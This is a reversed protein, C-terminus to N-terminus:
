CVIEGRHSSAELALVDLELLRFGLAHLRMAGLQRGFLPLGACVAAREFQRERTCAGIKRARPRGRMALHELLRDGDQFLLDSPGASAPWWVVYTTDAKLRVTVSDF